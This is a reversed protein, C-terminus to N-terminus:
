FAEGRPQETWYIAVGDRFRDSKSILPGEPLQNM